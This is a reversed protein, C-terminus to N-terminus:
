MLKLEILDVLYCVCCRQGANSCISQEAEQMRTFWVCFKKLPSPPSSLENEYKRALEQQATTKWLPCTM